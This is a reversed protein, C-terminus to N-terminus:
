SAGAPAPEPHRVRTPGLRARALAV